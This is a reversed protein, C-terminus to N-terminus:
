HEILIKQIEPNSDKNYYIHLIYLGNPLDLVPLNMKNGKFTVDKCLKNYSNFLQIKYLAGDDNKRFANTVTDGQESNTSTFEINLIDSVPVPYISFPSGSPIVVPFYKATAREGCDNSAWCFITYVGGTPVRIIVEKNSYPFTPFIGINAPSTDWRYTVGVPPNPVWAIVELTGISSNVNPVDPFGIWVDYTTEYTQSGFSITAKIWAAGATNPKAWIAAITNNSLTYIVQLDASCSWTISVGQPLPTISYNQFQTPCMARPGTISPSLLCGANAVSNRIVNGPQPGFGLNFNKGVSTRHCYSMITGGGSPIGPLSCSGRETAGACGDIATNNGNWVCAHTHYSGLLHGFEHTVVDVSWSYNPVNYYYNYIQAVSLKYKTQNACLGDVVAIGGNINRFTLLQGLDGNIYYTRYNQYQTLLNATTSATFPDESTWVYIQSLNTMIDENLYLIAVQNFIGSILTEVASVSGLTTFIDYETEFYFRVVKSSSTLSSKMQKRLMDADYTNKVRDDPATSCEFEPKKIVNKDNYLLHFGTQKDLAINFNGEDTAILGLVEDKSLSFAVLSNPINKVVGRYHKISRDANTEKGDSTTVKYDYFNSPVLQLDLQIEKNGYPVTLTIASDLSNEPPQTYKLLYVEDTKKFNSQFKLSMKQTQNTEAKLFINQINKFKKGSIKSDEVQTFLLNKEQSHCYLSCVLFFLFSIFKLQKM